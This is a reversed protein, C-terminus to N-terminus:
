LQRGMPKGWHPSECRMRRRTHRLHRRSMHTTCLLHELDVIHKDDAPISHNVCTGLDGPQWTQPMGTAVDWICHYRSRVGRM